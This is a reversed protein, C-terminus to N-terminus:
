TGIWFPLIAEGLFPLCCRGVQLYVKALVLGLWLPVVYEFIDFSLLDLLLLRQIRDPLGGSIYILVLSVELVRVKHAAVFRRIEVLLSRCGCAFDLLMPHIVLIMHWCVLEFRVITAVLRISLECPEELRESDAM